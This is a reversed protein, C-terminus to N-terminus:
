RLLHQIQETVATPEVTGFEIMAYIIMRQRTVRM